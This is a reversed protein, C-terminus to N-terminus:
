VGPIFEITYSLLTMSDAINALQATIVLDQSTTMNKTGTASPNNTGFSSTTSNLYGVQASTSNAAQIDVISHFGACEHGLNGLIACADEATITAFENMLGAVIWPVKSRFLKDDRTISM